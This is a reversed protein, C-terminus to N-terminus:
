EPVLGDLILSSLHFALTTPDEIGEDNLTALILREVAGVVTLASVRAPFPRILGHRRATETLAVAEDAMRAALASIPRRAGTAPGRNEQLYLRLVDRHRLLVEALAAGLVAYAVLMDVKGTAVELSEGCTEFARDVLQAAPEILVEVLQEKSEFYRYFGGKAMGARGTIEDITTAEVGRALFCTVAARCLGEM